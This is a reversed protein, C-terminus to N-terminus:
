KQALECCKASGSSPLGCRPTGLVIEVLDCSRHQEARHEVRHVAPRAAAADRRGLRTGVRASPVSTATSAPPPLKRRDGAYGIGRSGFVSGSCRNRGPNRPPRSASGGLYRRRPRCPAPAQPRHPRCRCRGSHARRDHLCREAGIRSSNAHARRRARRSARIRRCSCGTARFAPPAAGVPSGRAEM